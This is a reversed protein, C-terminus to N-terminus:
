TAPSTEHGENADTLLRALWHALQEPEFPKHVFAFSTDWQEANPLLEPSLGSM